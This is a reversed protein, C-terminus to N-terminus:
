IKLPMSNTFFMFNITHPAIIRSWPTSLQLYILKGPEPVQQGKIQNEKNIVVYALAFGLIFGLIGVSITGLVCKIRSKTQGNKGDRPSELINLISSSDFESSM